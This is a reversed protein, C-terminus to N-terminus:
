KPEGLFLRSCIRRSSPRPRGAAPRGGAPRPDAAGPFGAAPRKFFGLFIIQFSVPEFGFSLQVEQHTAVLVVQLRPQQHGREQPVGLPEVVRSM